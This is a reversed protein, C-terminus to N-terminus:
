TEDSDSAGCSSCSWGDGPDWHTADSSCNRCTVIAGGGGDEQIHFHKPNLPSAKTWSAREHRNFYHADGPAVPERDDPDNGAREVEALRPAHEHLFETMAGLGPDYGGADADLVAKAAAAVWGARVRVDRDALGPVHLAGRVAQLLDRVEPDLPTM